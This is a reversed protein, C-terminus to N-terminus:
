EAKDEGSHTSPPAEPEEGEVDASPQSKKVRLKFSPYAKNLGDLLLNVLHVSDGAVSKMTRKPLSPIRHYRHLPNLCLDFVTDRVAGWQGHVYGSPWGYYKDYVSKVGAEESMKRLDLGAWNGLEITTFEQWIDENAFMELENIDIYDPIDSENDVMKLFSLKAQGSGYSRFKKWLGPDDRKLLFSLTIVIETLTRIALRGEVREHATGQNLTIALNIGYLVLGFVSDIRPDIGTNKCSDFFHGAVKAYIQALQPIVFDTSVSESKRLPAPICDSMEWCDRWFDEAWKSNNEVPIASFAQENARISPRVVRMDGINPFGIIPEAMEAPMRMKGIAMMFVVKLWRCDTSAESQHDTTKAVSKALLQLAAQPEDPESIHRRWHAKDPLSPLLTLASLAKKVDEFQLLAGFIEDFDQESLASNQSHTISAKDGIKAASSVVMRFKELYSNRELAGTLLVAWLVDPLREDRWSSPHMNPISAFPPTLTKGKKSHQNLKSFNRNKKSM